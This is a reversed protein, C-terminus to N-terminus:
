CLQGTRLQCLSIEGLTADVCANGVKPTRKNGTGFPTMMYEQDFRERRTKSKRATEPLADFRPVIVLDILRREMFRLTSGADQRCFSRLFASGALHPCCRPPATESTRTEHNWYMRSAFPPKGHVSETMSDYGPKPFRRQLRVCELRKAVAPRRRVACVTQLADSKDASETQRRVALPERDWHMRLFRFPDRWSRM